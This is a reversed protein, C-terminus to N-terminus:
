RRSESRPARESAAELGALLGLDVAGGAAHAAGEIRHALLNTTGAEFYAGADAAYLWADIRPVGAPGALERLELDDVPSRPDAFADPDDRELQALQAQHAASLTRADVPRHQSVISLPLPRPLGRVHESVAAMVGPRREALATLQALFAKAHVTRPLAELM